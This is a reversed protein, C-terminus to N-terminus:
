EVAKAWCLLQSQGVLVGDRPNQVAWLQKRLVGDDAILRQSHACCASSFSAGLVVACSPHYRCVVLAGVARRQTYRSEEFRNSVGAQSSQCLHIESARVASDAQAEVQLKQAAQPGQQGGAKM